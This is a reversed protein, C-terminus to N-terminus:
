LIATRKSERNVWVVGIESGIEDWRFRERLSWFEFSGTLTDPTINVPIPTAIAATLRKRM